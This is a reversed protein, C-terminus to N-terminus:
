FILGLASAFDSEELKAIYLYDSNSIVDHTLERHVSGSSSYTQRVRKNCVLAFCYFYRWSIMM